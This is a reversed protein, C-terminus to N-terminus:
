NYWRMVKNQTQSRTEMRHPPFINYRPSPPRINQSEVTDPIVSSTKNIEQSRNEQQKSPLPSSPFPSMKIPSGFSNDLAAAENILNRYTEHTYPPTYSGSPPSTHTHTPIYSGSPPSTHTHTHKPSQFYAAPSPYHPPPSKFLEELHYSNPTYPTSHTPTNHRKPTQPLPTHPSSSFSPPHSNMHNPTPSIHPPLNQNIPSSPVSRQPPSQKMSPPRDPHPQEMKPTCPSTSPSIPVTHPIPQPSKQVPTENINNVTSKPTITNIPRDAIIKNNESNSIFPQNPKPTSHRPLFNENALPFASINTQPRPTDPAIESPTWAPLPHVMPPPTIIYSWSASPEPPAREEVEPVEEPEEIENENIFFEDTLDEHPIM